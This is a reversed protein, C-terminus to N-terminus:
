ARRTLAKPAPPPTEWLPLSGKPTNQSNALVWGGAPAPFPLAGLERRGARRRVPKPSVRSSRGPKVQHAQSRVCRLIFSPDLFSCFVTLPKPSPFCPATPHRERELAATATNRRGGREATGHNWGPQLWPGRGAGGTGGQSREHSGRRHGAGVGPGPPTGRCSGRKVSGNRQGQGTLAIISCSIFFPIGGLRIM